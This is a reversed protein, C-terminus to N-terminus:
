KLEGSDPDYGWNKELNYKNQLAEKFSNLERVKQSVKNKEDLLNERLTEIDRKILEIKLKEKEIIEERHKIIALCKGIKETLYNVDSNSESLRLLRELEFPTLYM